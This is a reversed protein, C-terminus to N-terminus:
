PKTQPGPIRIWSTIRLIRGGLDIWLSGDPNVRIVDCPGDVLAPFVGKANLCPRVIM